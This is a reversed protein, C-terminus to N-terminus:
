LTIKIRESTATKNSQKCFGFRYICFVVALIFLLLLLALLIVFFIQPIFFMGDTVCQLPSYGISSNLVVLPHDLMPEKTALLDFSSSPLITQVSMYSDIEYVLPFANSLLKRAGELTLLYGQLRFAIGKVRVLDSSDTETLETHDTLPYPIPLLNFNVADYQESTNELIERVKQCFDNRRFEVDAEFIIIAPIKKRVMFQWLSIHSLACGVAGANHYDYFNSKQGYRLSKEAQSSLMSVSPSIEVQPYRDALIQQYDSRLSMDKNFLDKGRVANWQAIDKFDGAASIKDAAIRFDPESLSIVRVPVNCFSSSM